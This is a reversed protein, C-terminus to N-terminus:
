IARSSRSLRDSGSAKEYYLDMQFRHGPAGSLVRGNEPGAQSLAEGGRASAPSSRQTQCDRPIQSNITVAVPTTSVPRPHVPHLSVDRATGRRPSGPTTFAARIPLERRPRRLRRISTPTPPPQQRRTRTSDSTLRRHRRRTSTSTSTSDFHMRRGFHSHVHPDDHVHVLREANDVVEPNDDLDHRLRHRPQRRPRHPRRVRRRRKDRHRTTTTSSSASRRWTRRGVAGEDRKVAAM